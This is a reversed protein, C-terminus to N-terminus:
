GRARQRYVPTKGERLRSEERDSRELIAQPARRTKNVQFFDVFIKGSGSRQPRRAQRKAAFNGLGVSREPHQGDSPLPNATQQRPRM